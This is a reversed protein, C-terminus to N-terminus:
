KDNKVKESLLRLDKKLIFQEHLLEGISERMKTHGIWMYVVAAFAALNFIIYTEHM